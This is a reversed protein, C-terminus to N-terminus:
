VYQKAPKRIRKMNKVPPRAQNQRRFKELAEPTVRWQRYRGDPAADYAQLRGSRILTQISGRSRRLIHALQTVTHHSTASNM